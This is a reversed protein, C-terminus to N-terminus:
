IGAWGHVVELDSMMKPRGSDVSLEETRADIYPWDLQKQVKIVGGIDVHDQWDFRALKYVILDEPTALRLTEKYEPAYADEARELAHDDLAFSALRIDFSYKRDWNIKATKGLKLEEGVRRRNWVHHGADILAVLDEVGEQPVLVVIDADKTSRPEGHASSAVGGMYFHDIENDRLLSNVFKIADRLPM